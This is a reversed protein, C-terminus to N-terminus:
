TLDEDASLDYCRGVVKYITDPKFGRSSLFAYGKEKRKRSDFKEWSKMKKRLLRNAMEIEDVEVESMANDIVDKPVGKRELEKKILYIGKPRLRIRSSIFDEAFQEDNLYRLEILRDLVEVIVECNVGRKKSFQELKKRMERTTYRKRALLFLSYQLLKEYEKLM